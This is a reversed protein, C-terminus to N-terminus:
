INKLLTIKSKKKAGQGEISIWEKQELYDLVRWATSKGSYKMMATVDDYSAFITAKNKQLFKVFKAQLPSLKEKNLRQPM